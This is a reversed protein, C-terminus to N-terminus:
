ERPERGRQVREVRVQVRRQFCARLLSTTAAAPKAAGQDDALHAQGDHQDEPGPQQELAKLADEVLRKAEVWAADEGRSEPQRLRLVVISAHARGRVVEAFPDRPEGP